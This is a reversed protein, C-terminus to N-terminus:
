GSVVAQRALGVEDVRVKAGLFIRAEASVQCAHDAMSAKIQLTWHANLFSFDPVLM